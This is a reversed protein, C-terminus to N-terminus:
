AMRTRASAREQISRADGQAFADPNVCRSSHSHVYRVSKAAVQKGALEPVHSRVRASHSRRAGAHLLDLPTRRGSERPGVTAAVFAILDAQLPQLSPSLTFSGLASESLHSSSGASSPLSAHAFSNVAAHRVAAPAGSLFEPGRWPFPSNLSKSSKRSSNPNATHVARSRQRRLPQSSRIRQHAMTLGPQTSIRPVGHQRKRSVM